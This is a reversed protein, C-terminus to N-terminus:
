LLKGAKETECHLFVDESHGCNHSLSYSCSAWDGSECNVDDLTIDRASQIKPWKDGYQWDVHGSHGMERCIADASNGDFGDDCVTGGSSILLGLVGAGVPNGKEDILSFAAIIGHRDVKEQCCSIRRVNWRFM